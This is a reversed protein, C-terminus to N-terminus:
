KRLAKQALEPMYGRGDNCGAIEQLAGELRACREHTKLFRDLYREAIIDASLWRRRFVRAAQKWTM